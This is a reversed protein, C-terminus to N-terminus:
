GRAQPATPMEGMAARFLLDDTARLRRCLERGLNMQLLTFQELDAEYLHLMEEPGFEIAVCPELARVAASRPHLDMLAMEGFCDGPGFRNLEIERGQWQRTVVARGSELVYVSRAADGERFFYEGAAVEVPRSKEVLLQLAREGLAGFVPMRQLLEVRRADM